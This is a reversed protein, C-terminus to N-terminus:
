DPNSPVAIGKFYRAEDERPSWPQLEALLRAHIQPTRSLICTTEDHSTAVIYEGSTPVLFADWGILLPQVLCVQLDVIEQASFIYGPADEMTTCDDHARRMLQMVRLGAREVLENWIGWERIWLLAGGFPVEVTYPLLSNALAVLEYPKSPLEIAICSRSEPFYLYRDDTVAVSRDRCWSAAQERTLGLM